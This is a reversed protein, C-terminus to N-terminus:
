LYSASVSGGINLVFALRMYRMGAADDIGSLASECVGMARRLVEIRQARVEVCADWGLFCDVAAGLVGAVTAQRLLSM